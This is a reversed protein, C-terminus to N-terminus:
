VPKPKSNVLHMPQLFHGIKKWYSFQVNITKLVYNFVRSTIGFYDKPFFVAISFYLKPISSCVFPTLSLIQYIIILKVNKHLIHSSYSINLQRMTICKHALNPIGLDVLLSKRALVCIWPSFIIKIHLGFALTMGIHCMTGHHFVWTGFIPHSHWLVFCIHGSCLVIVFVYLNVKFDFSLPMHIYAVCWSITIFEHALYSIDINCCCFNRTPCLSM